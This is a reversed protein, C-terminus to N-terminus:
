NTSMLRIHLEEGVGVCKDETLAQLVRNHQNQSRFLWLLAETYSNGQSALLVSCSEIQCRNANSLLEVVAGRRSPHCSVLASLLVTDLLQARRIEEDADGIYDQLFNSCFVFISLFMCSVDEDDDPLPAQGKPLTGGIGSERLGDARSARKNFQLHTLQYTNVHIFSQM